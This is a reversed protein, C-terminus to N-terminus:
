QYVEDCRLLEEIIQELRRPDDAPGTSTRPSM